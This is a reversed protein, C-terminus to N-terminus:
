EKRCFELQADFCKRGERSGQVAFIAGESCTALAAETNLPIEHHYHIVCRKVWETNWRECPVLDYMWDAYKTNNLHGNRDCETYLACRTGSEVFSGQLKELEMSLALPAGGFFSLDMEEPPRRLIRHQVADVLVWRTDVECVVEGKEDILEAVRPYVARQATGAATDMRLHEGVTVPRKWEVASKVMLFIAGCHEYLADNMGVSECHDTGLQQVRRLLSGTTMIGNQDTEWEFVRFTTQYDYREM